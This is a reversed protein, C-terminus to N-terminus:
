HLAIGKEGDAGIWEPVIRLEQRLGFARVKDPTLKCNRLGDTRPKGPLFKHYVVGDVEGLWSKAGRITQRENPDHSFKAHKLLLVTCTPGAAEKVTRLSRLARSAESNDNEEAIACGPTVTDIIILSPKVEAACDIMYAYRNKAHRALSFHEVFLRSQLQSVSPCGLGRWIWRLYQHMDPRGNEEDFYLVNGSTVPHGLAPLGLAVCFSLYYALFSKGVGPDGAMLIVQGKYIWDGVLYTPEPDQGTLVTNLDINEMRPRYINRKVRDFM